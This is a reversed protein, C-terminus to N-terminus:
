ARLPPERAVVVIPAQDIALRSDAVWGSHPSFADVFGAEGWIRDGLEDHFHRIAPM